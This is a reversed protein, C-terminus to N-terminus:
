SNLGMVLNKKESNKMKQIMTKEITRMAITMTRHAKM